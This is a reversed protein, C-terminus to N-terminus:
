SRWAPQSQERESCSPDSPISNSFTQQIFTFMLLMLLSTDLAQTHAMVGNCRAMAAKNLRQIYGVTVEVLLSARHSAM